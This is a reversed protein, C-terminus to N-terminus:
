YTAGGVLSYGNSERGHPYGRPTLTGTRSVVAPGAEITAACM